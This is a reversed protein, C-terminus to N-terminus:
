VYDYSNYGKGERKALYKEPLTRILLFFAMGAGLLGWKLAVTTWIGLAILASMVCVHVVKLILDKNRFRGLELAASLIRGGDLPLVPILNCLGQILGFLATVPAASAIMLLSLSGAPGALACLLEQMPNMEGTIIRAGGCGVSFGLIEVGCLKLVAVHFMEHIVACFVGAVIWDLPLVLLALALGILFDPGIDVFKRM